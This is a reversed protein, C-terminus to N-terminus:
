ANPRRRMNEKGIHEIVQELFSTLVNAFHDESSDFINGGLPAKGTHPMSFVTKTRGIEDVNIHVSRVVKDPHHLEISIQFLDPEERKKAPLLSFHTGHGRCQENVAAVAKSIDAFTQKWRQLTQKKRDEHEARRKAAEADAEAIDNEVARGSL